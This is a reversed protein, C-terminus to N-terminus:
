LKLYLTFVNKHMINRYYFFIYKVKELKIVFLSGNPKVNTEESAIESQTQFYNSEIYVHISNIFMYNLYKRIECFFECIVNYYTM